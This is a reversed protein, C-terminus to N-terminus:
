GLCVNQQKGMEITTPKRSFPPEKKKTPLEIQQRSHKFSSMKMLLLTELFNQSKENAGILSKAKNRTDKVPLMEFKKSLYEAKIKSVKVQVKNEKLM